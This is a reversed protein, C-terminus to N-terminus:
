NWYLTFTNKTLGIFPGKVKVVPKNNDLYLRLELSGQTHNGNVSIYEDKYKPEKFKLSFCQGGKLIFNDVTYMELDTRSADANKLFFLFAILCIKLLGLRTMM